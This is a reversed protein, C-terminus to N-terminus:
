IPSVRRLESLRKARDAIQTELFEADSRPKPGADPYFFYPNYLDRRYGKGFYQSALDIWRISSSKLCLVVAAVLVVMM